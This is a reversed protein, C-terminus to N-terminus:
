NKLSTIIVNPLLENIQDLLIKNSDFCIMELNGGNSIDLNKITEPFKKISNGKLNIIKLGKLKGITDPLEKLKNNPLSLIELKDMDGISPHLEELKCNVMYFHKVNRFGSVDPIKPYSNNSIIIKDITKDFIDFIVNKFKFENLAKIYNSNYNNTAKAMEILEAYFYDSLGDNDKILISLDKIRRDSKDMYQGTEFDLQYLEDTNNSNSLFSKPIIIYLKAKRNLSTKRSIYSNFTSQSLTTCWRTFDKFLRSSKIHTPNYVIVKRDEYPILGRRLKVSFRIQNELESVDKKIYPDVADFLLSLDRYQNIDSPDNIDKVASNYKCLEKFMPKNKESHFIKLYENAILLDEDIFLKGMNIDRKLLKIFTNLMWQCYEKHKTPDSEIIKDFVWDSIMIDDIVYLGENRLKRANWLYLIYVDGNSELPEYDIQKVRYNGSESIKEYDKETFVKFKKSLFAIRKNDDKSL